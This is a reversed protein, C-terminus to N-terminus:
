RRYRDQFFAHVQLESPEDDGRSATMVRFQPLATLRDASRQAQRRGTGLAGQVMKVSPASGHKFLFTNPLFENLETEHAFDNISQSSLFVPIGKSRGTRILQLLPECRSKLYYHAEDVAVIGRLARSHSSGTYPADPLSQSVNHLHQLLVFAVFRQLDADYLKSLDLIWRERFLADHAPGEDAFLKLKVLQDLLGIVSDPRADDNAYADHVARGVDALTPTRREFVQEFARALRQRQVEGLRSTSAAAFLGAYARPVLHPQVGPPLQFPNLPVPEAGPRVIRCDTVRVFDQNEALDGKYDLLFFGHSSRQALSALLHLLFQSKGTGPMGALRLNANNHHGGERNVAWSLSGEEDEGLEIELIGAGSTAASVATGGPSLVRVLEFPDDDVARLTRALLERGRAVAGGITPNGEAAEVIKQFLPAGFPEDLDATEIRADDNAGPPIRQVGPPLEGTQEAFALAAAIRDVVIRDVGWAEALREHVHQEHREVAM